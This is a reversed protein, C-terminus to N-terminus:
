WMSLERLMDKKEDNVAESIDADLLENAVVNFARELDEATCSLRDPLIFLEAGRLKVSLKGDFLRCVSIDM